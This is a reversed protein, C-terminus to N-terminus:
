IRQRAKLMMVLDRGASEIHHRMLREAQDPDHKELASLIARHEQIDVTDREPLPHHATYVFSSLLMTPFTDWMQRLTRMLYPRRSAAFIAQHFQSNLVRYEVLYDPASKEAMQIQLTRLRDLEEDTIHLAAARCALGELFGRHIYLDAVDDPTFGVVRVGRYPIHEVLGEAVLEKLAERVPMQSVNLEEALQRQRLWQGPKLQGELIFTRLREAVLHQLQTHPSFTNEAAM